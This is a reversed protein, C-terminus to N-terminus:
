EDEEEPTPLLEKSIQAPQAPGKVKGGEKAAALRKKNEAKTAKQAAEEEARAILTEADANGKRKVPAGKIKVALCPKSDKDLKPEFSAEVTTVPRLSECQRFVAGFHTTFTRSEEDFKCAVAGEDTERAARVLVTGLSRIFDTTVWAQKPDVGQEELYGMLEESGEVNFKSYGTTSVEVASRNRRSGSFSDFKGQVKEVVVNPALPQYNLKRAM